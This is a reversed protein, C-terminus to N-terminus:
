SEQGGSDFSAKSRRLWADPRIANTEKVAGVNVLEDCLLLFFSLESEQLRGPCNIRLHQAEEHWSKALRPGAARFRQPESLGPSVPEVM